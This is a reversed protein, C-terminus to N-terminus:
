KKRSSTKLSSSTSHGSAQSTKIKPSTSPKSKNSFSQVSTIKGDNRHVVVSSHDNKAISKAKEVASSKTTRVASAKNANPRVVRWGSDSPVVHVNKSKPAPM